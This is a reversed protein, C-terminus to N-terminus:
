VFMQQLLGKKYENLSDLKEQEKQIKKDVSTLFVSIKNQEDICPLEIKLQKVNSFNVYIQTGGQSIAFVKKRFGDFNLNLWLFSPLVNDKCILRESRQNYIYKNDEDILITSGILDGTSTKDNLVMVLENEYLLKDKTKDNLSIKQNINVYKGDISYNGISIFNHSGNEDVFKELATGGQNIVIDGLKKEEWEPYDNGNEDKFRLERSFIKQMLGKKYDKLYKVKESQLNIKDDILSLLSAIKEQEQLSPSNFLISKLSDTNLKPQATGTNYPIYNILELNHKMFDMNFKSIPKFIHAHNNVWFRGQTKYILPANRTIINAGDEGLILYEGEFIYNDIYDIIGTAGYYAYEGSSREQEKIPKRQNDYLIISDGLLFSEWEESFEKFRLKPTKSM